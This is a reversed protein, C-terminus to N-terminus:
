KAALFVQRRWCNMSRQSTALHRCGDDLLRHQAHLLYPSQGAGTPRIAARDIGKDRWRGPGGGGQGIAQSEIVPQCDATLRHGALDHQIMWNNRATVGLEFYRTSSDHYTVEAARVAGIDVTLKQSAGPGQGHPIADIDAGEFQREITGREPRQPIAVDFQFNLADAVIHPDVPGPRCCRLADQV